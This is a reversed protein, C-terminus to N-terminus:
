DCVVSDSFEGIDNFEGGDSFEGVDNFEGGDSFEGVDNFEGVVDDIIENLNVLYM